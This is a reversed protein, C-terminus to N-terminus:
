SGTSIAVTSVQKKAFEEASEPSFGKAILADVLKNMLVGKKHNHCPIDLAM